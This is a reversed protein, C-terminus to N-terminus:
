DDVDDFILAVKDVTSSARPAQEYASTSVADSELETARQEVEEIKRLLKSSVGFEQRGHFTAFRQLNEALTRMHASMDTSSWDHEWSYVVDDLQDIIETEVREKLSEFEKDTLLSGVDADYFVSGDVMAITEDGIKTAAAVRTKEPLIKFHHLRSLFSIASNSHLESGISDICDLSSPAATIYLNLFAADCRYTLFYRTRWSNESILRAILKGYMSPPIKVQAGEINVDGCVIESCLRDLKAGDIYIEILEPSGSVLSAFADSITPHKYRWHHGSTDQILLTLSGALIELASAIEPRKVGLLRIVTSL